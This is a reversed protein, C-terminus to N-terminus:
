ANVINCAFLKQTNIKTDVGTCPIKNLLASINERNYLGKHYWKDYYSLLIRFCELHNNEELFRLANKTELGGLRKQIRLIAESLTEKKLQGYEETIYILREEFPIDMFFVPAKRMNRWLPMPIQLNGIRQSEDELFICGGLGRFPSGSGAIKQLDSNTEYLKEGLMNEFMEQGPQPKNEISGFASGKHNALGELDIITKSHDKLEHLLLTKGSGTYGGIISFNYDKEFQALVWKRYAKYGGTLLFVKFGYMDLLWAVAASRMGGRWCHVLVCNAIPLESQETQKNGVALQWSGVIAEVEEVMTRMKVGFYDLGTKIAAERSQQKYATGVQKREEDSFLPLSH